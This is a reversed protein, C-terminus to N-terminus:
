PWKPANLIQSARFIDPDNKIIKKDKSNFGSLITEFDKLNSEYNFKRNFKVYFAVSGVYCNRNGTKSSDSIAMRLHKYAADWQMSNLLFSAQGKYVDCATRKDYQWATNKNSVKEISTTGCASLVIGVCIYLSKKYM